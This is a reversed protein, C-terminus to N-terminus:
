NESSLLGLLADWDDKQSTTRCVRLEDYQRFLMGLIGAAAAAVTALFYGVGGGPALTFSGEM